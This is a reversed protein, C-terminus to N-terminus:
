KVCTFLCTAEPTTAEARLIADIGIEPTINKYHILKVRKCGYPMTFVLHMAGEM